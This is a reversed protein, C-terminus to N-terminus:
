EHDINLTLFILCSHPWGQVDHWPPLVIWPKFKHDFLECMMHLPSDNLDFEFIMIAHPLLYTNMMELSPSLVVYAWFKGEYTLTLSTLWWKWKKRFCLSYEAVCLFIFVLWYFPNLESLSCTFFVRPDAVFIYCNIIWNKQLM